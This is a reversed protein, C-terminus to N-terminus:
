IPLFVTAQPIATPDSPDAQEVEFPFRGDTRSGGFKVRLTALKIWAQWRSQYPGVHHLCMYKGGPMYTEALHPLSLRKTSSFACMPRLQGVPAWASGVPFTMARHVEEVGHREVVDFVADFVEPAERAFHRNRGGVAVRGYCYRPALEVIRAPAHTSAKAPPQVNLWSLEASSARGFRQPSSGFRQRFSRTFASANQFGVDLAVEIVKLTGPRDNKFQRAAHDLRAHTVLQMPTLGTHTLLVEHLHSKSLSATAMLRDVSLDADLNTDIFQAVRDIARMHGLVTELKVPDLAMLFFRSMRKPQCPSDLTRAHLNGNQACLSQDFSALCRLRTM